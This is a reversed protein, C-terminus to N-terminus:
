ALGHRRMWVELTLLAWLQQGNDARLALHDAWLARIGDPRVRGALRPHDLLLDEVVPRLEGRFWAGLPVGFGQKPRDLISAPLLDAVARKLVIKGRRGARKFADPLTAVYEVLARDLFPSRTELGHAMSMRDMKPLLDDLLYTRANLYLLRSLLSSDRVRDLAERYSSLVGAAAADSALSRIEPLDFFSSWAVVRELEPRVAKDAFRRARGLARPSGPAARITLAARRILRRLPGPIRDALLAARFRDYGAFVEDGGDGNLAVTVHRRAERSVLYTPLASSDGFPEDYHHVLTELLEAAHPRVVSDHHETGIHRAVAAAHPREDFYSDGEFGVTFTKVRGPVLRAMLAAVASSDVGGSLLVGIPVDSVLRKEVAAALLKRVRAAAEDLGVRAAQGRAPFALDWYPPLVRVGEADAVLVSAPPVKLIGRFFTAPSPVYGFALYEGLREDAMEAPVGAALLAKIESGFVLRRRDHWYFLPKKGFPDRALVLRRRRADWIALAFMGDLAAVIGEAGEEYGHVIVETDGSTRFTHSHALGERLTRFNYIEGNLLVQVRGDEGGLPQNAAESLDIISLRRHLLGVAPAGAHDEFLGEADPGRHCLTSGMRRLTEREIPAGDFHLIGALGCM